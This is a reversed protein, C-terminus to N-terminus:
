EAKDAPAAVEAAAAAPAAVEATAAAAAPEAAAAPAAPAAADAPAPASPAAAAPAPAASRAAEKEKAAKRRAAAAAEQAAEEESETLKKINFRALEQLKFYLFHVYSQLCGRCLVPLRSCAGTSSAGDRGAWRVQQRPRGSVAASCSKHHPWWGLSGRQVTLGAQLNGGGM